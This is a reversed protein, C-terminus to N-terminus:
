LNYRSLNLQSLGVKFVPPVLGLTPTQFNLGMSPNRAPPPVHAGDNFVGGRGLCLVVTKSGHRGALSSQIGCRPGRALIFEERLTSRDPIQGLCHFFYSVCCM